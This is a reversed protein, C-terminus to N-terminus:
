PGMKPGARMRAGAALRQGEAGAREGHRVAQVVRGIEALTARDVGAERLGGTEAVGAGRRDMARLAEAGLRGEVARVFSALEGAVRGDAQLTAWAGARAQPTEVVGLARVADQARASLVPVGTVETARRAAIGAEYGQAAAAEADGIRRMAPGVGQVVQEAQARAARNARGALLGTRGALSGLQEPAAVIRHVASTAVAGNKSVPWIFRGRELKKVYFPMGVVDHWLVKVMSGSRGRFVHLDGAHPDRGLGEHVLLALGPMGKRMDTVGNALWVRAGPPLAIM